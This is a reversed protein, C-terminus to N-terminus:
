KITIERRSRIDGDSVGISNIGDVRGGTPAGTVSKRYRRAFALFKDRGLAKSFLYGQYIDCGLPKLKETQEYTEVYEAILEMDIVKCLSAISSVIEQSNVDSSIDETLVRDLKVTSINYEKIYILSSHGMGFDDIALNAGLRKIGNLVSATEATQRFAAGETLEFEVSEPDVDYREMQEAIFGVLGASKIQEYMLNISYKIGRVGKKNFYDIQSFVDKIIWNGLKDTLGAEVAIKIVVPPPISGFVRHNWRLLAEAGVLKGHYNIQPQFEMFLSSNRESDLAVNIDHALERAIAGMDDAREIFKTMSFDKESHVVEVLERLMSTNLKSMHKDYLSVFPIYILTGLALNVLQLVVGAFSGTSAYGGMIVPATWNLSSNVTLPVLGSRMAAFSVLTLAIPAAIFPILFFPNFMVPLGFMVLENTNFLTPIASIKAFKSSGCRSGKIILACVLCLSSGAGGIYVFADLFQKTFIQTPPMGALVLSANVYSNASFIATTVSELANSGHVGLFWLVHTLVEFVIAAALPPLKDLILALARGDLFSDVATEFVTKVLAVTLFTLATPEILSISQVLANDANYAYLRANLIRHDCFWFFLSTIALALIVAGFLGTNMAAAAPLIENGSRIIMLYCCLVVILVAVTPLKKENARRNEVCLAYSVGLLVCVSMIEMTGGNISSLVLRGGGGTLEDFFATLGPIPFNLLLLTVSGIMFVPLNYM